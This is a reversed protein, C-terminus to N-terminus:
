SYNIMSKTKRHKSARKKIVAVIKDVIDPDALPLAYANEEKWQGGLVFCLNGESIHVMDFLFTHPTPFMVNISAGRSGDNIRLVVDNPDAGVKIIAQAILDIMIGAGSLTLYEGNGTERTLKLM